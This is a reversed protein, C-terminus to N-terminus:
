STPATRRAPAIPAAFKPTMAAHEELADVVLELREPLPQTEVTRFMGQLGGDIRALRRLHLLWMGQLIM